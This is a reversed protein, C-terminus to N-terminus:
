KKTLKLDYAGPAPNAAVQFGLTTKSINGYKQDFPPEPLSGKKAKPDV